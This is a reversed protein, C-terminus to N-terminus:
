VIIAWHINRVQTACREGLAGVVIDNPKLPYLTGDCLELYDVNGDKREIYRGVVYDGTAWIERPAVQVTFPNERLDSIRSLSGFHIDNKNNVENM